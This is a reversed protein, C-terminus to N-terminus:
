NTRVWIHVTKYPPLSSATDTDGFIATGRDMSVSVKDNYGPLGNMINGIGYMSKSRLIVPQFNSRSNNWESAIAAVLNSSGHSHTDFGGTTNTQSSSSVGYLFQNTAFIEWSGGFVDSPNGGTNIYISGVPYVLLTIKGKLYNWLTSLTFKQNSNNTLDVNSIYMDDDVTTITIDTLKNQKNDIEGLKKEEVVSTALKGSEDMYLVRNNTLTNSYIYNNNNLVMIYLLLIFITTINFQKKKSQRNRNVYEKNITNNYNSIKM